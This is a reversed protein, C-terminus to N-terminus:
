SHPRRESGPRSSRRSARRMPVAGSAIGIAIVILIAGGVQAAGIREGLVVFALVAATPPNLLFLLSAEQARLRRMAIVVLVSAAAGPGLAVWAAALLSRVGIGERILPDGTAAAVAVAVIASAVLSVLGITLGSLNFPGSWRRSLVLFVGFSLAAVLAIAIGLTSGAGGTVGSLLITGGLSAILAIVKEPELREGPFPVALLSAVVAYLGAVFATVTAGSLAVAANMALVFIGGGALGIAVLRLGSGPASRRPRDESLAPHLLVAGLVAGGLTGRVVAVGIPTFGDLAVAIAVYASGYLIGAAGAAARGIVSM